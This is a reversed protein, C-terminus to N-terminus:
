SVLGVRPWCRISKNGKTAAPGVLMAAPEREESEGVVARRDDLCGGGWGM